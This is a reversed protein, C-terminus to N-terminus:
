TQISLSHRATCYVVAELSSRILPKREKKFFFFFLESIYTYHLRSGRRSRQPPSPSLPVFSTRNQGTECGCTMPPCRLLTHAHMASQKVVSLANAKLVKVIGALHGCHTRKYLCSLSALMVSPKVPTVWKFGPCFDSGYKSKWKTEDELTLATM